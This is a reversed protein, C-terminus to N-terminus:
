VGVVATPEAAAAAAPLKIGFHTALRRVDAPVFVRKGAIREVPERVLRNAIAYELRHPRINLLRSVDGLSMTHKMSNRWPKAAAVINPLAARNGGHHAVGVHLNFHSFVSVVALPRWTTLALLSTLLLGTIM